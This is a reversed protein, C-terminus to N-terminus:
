EGPSFPFVSECSGGGSFPSFFFFFFFFGFCGSSIEKWCAKSSNAETFSMCVWFLPAPRCTLLKGKSEPPKLCRPRNNDLKYKITRLLIGERLQLLFNLHLLASPMREALRGHARRVGYDFLFGGAILTPVAAMVDDILLMHSQFPFIIIDNINQDENMFSASKQEYLWEHTGNSEVNLTM